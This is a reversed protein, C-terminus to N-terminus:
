MDEYPVAGQVKVKALWSWWLSIKAYKTVSEIIVAFDNTVSVSNGKSSTKFFYKVHVTECNTKTYYNIGM